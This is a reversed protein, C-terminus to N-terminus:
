PVPVIEFSLSVQVKVTVPGFTESMIPASSDDNMGIGLTQSFMQMANGGYYDRNVVSENASLVRGLKVGTEKALAEARRRADAVALSRAKAIFPRPDELQFIFLPMPGQGYGYGYGMRNLAESGLSLGADQVSEILTTMTEAVAQPEMGDIPAITLKLSETAVIAPKPKMATEGSRMMNMAQEDYKAGLSLGMPEVRMNEIGLAKLSELARRKADRYKIVADQALEAEGRVGSLMVVTDPMTKVQGSGSVSLRSTSPSPEMAFSQGACVGTLTALLGATLFHRVIMQYSM